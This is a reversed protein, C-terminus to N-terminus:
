KKLKDIEQVLSDIQTQQEKIAELLLGVMNGYAVSKMGNDDTYVVEPLVQEVEQAIVGVSQKQDKVYTVGRLKNVTELANDIDSIDHKFRKDSLETVTGNVTLNGDITISTDFITALEDDTYNNATTVAANIRVAITNGITGDITSDGILTDNRFDTYIRAQNVASTEADAAETAAVGNAYAQAQSLTAAVQNDTYSEMGSVAIGIQTDTYAQAQTARTSDASSFSSYLNAATSDTYQNARFEADSVATNTYFRATEEAQDAKATADLAAIAIASAEAEDVDFTLAFTGSTQHTPLAIEVAGNLPEPAYLKVENDNDDAIAGEFVLKTGERLRVIKEGGQEAPFNNDADPYLSIIKQARLELDGNENTALINTYDVSDVTRIDKFAM